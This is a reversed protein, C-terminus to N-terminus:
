SREQRGDLVFYRQVPPLLTVAQILLGLSTYFVHVMSVANMMYTEVMIWIIQGFGIYLSLAWASHLARFPNLPTAWGWDPKKVLGYLVVLPLVGFVLFLLIGPIIFNPFPSRELVSVPMGMMEGSPDILLMVGGAIAGVGLFAQLIYLVIVAAPRRNSLRM